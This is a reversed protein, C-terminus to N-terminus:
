APGNEVNGAAPYLRRQERRVYDIHTHPIRCADTLRQWVLYSLPSLNGVHQVGVVQLKRGADDDCGSMKWLAKVMAKMLKRLKGQDEQRKGAGLVDGSRAVEVAGVEALDVGVGGALFMADFRRGPCGVKSAIDTRSVTFNDLDDLCHDLLMSWIKSGYWGERHSQPCGFSENTASQEITSLLSTVAANVYTANFTLKRDYPTQPPTPKSESTERLDIISSKQLETLPHPSLFNPGHIRVKDYRQRAYTFYQDVKPTPPLWSRLEKLEPESFWRRVNDVKLDIVWDLADGATAPHTAVAAHIVNELVRGSCTFTQKDAEQMGTFSNLFTDLRHSGAPTSTNTHTIIPRADTDSNNLGDDKGRPINNEERDEKEEEEEEEGGEEDEYQDEEDESFESPTPTSTRRPSVRRRKKM